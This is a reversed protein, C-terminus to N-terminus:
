LLLDKGGGKVRDWLGLKLGDLFGKNNQPGGGCAESLRELLM